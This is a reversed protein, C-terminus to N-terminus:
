GVLHRDHKWETLIADEKTDFTYRDGDDGVCIYIYYEPITESM